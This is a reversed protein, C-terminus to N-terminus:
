WKLITLIATRLSETDFAYLVSVLRRTINQKSYYEARLIKVM